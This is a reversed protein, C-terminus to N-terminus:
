KKLTAQMFTKMPQALPPYLAVVEKVAPFIARTDAGAESAAIIAEILKAAGAEPSLEIGEPIEDVFLLAEDKFSMVAYKAYTKLENSITEYDTDEPMNKLGNLCLYRKIFIDDIGSEELIAPLNGQDIPIENLRVNERFKKWLHRNAHIEPFLKIMLKAQKEDRMNRVIVPAVYDPVFVSIEMSGIRGLQNRSLNQNGTEMGACLSILRAKVMSSNNKYLNVFPCTAFTEEDDPNRMLWKYEKWYKSIQDAANEYDEMEMHIDAVNLHFYARCLRTNRDDSFAEDSVALAEEKKGEGLLAVFKGAYLAGIMICTGFDDRSKQQELGDCVIDYLRKNEGIHSLEVALMIRARLDEPDEDLMKELITMNRKSHEKEEEETDYVYGFHHAYDKLSAKEGPIAQKMYEHLKGVFKLGPVRRFMREIADDDWNRANRVTYSRIIFSARVYRKYTGNRFFREIESTSEFYEDDDLFMFWEGEAADLGLNRAAAFDNCWEFDLLKDAYEELRGRTEPDCGTDTIILECPITKRLHSLADFCKWMDEAKGNTMISISLQINGEM